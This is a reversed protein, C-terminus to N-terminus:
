AAKADKKRSSRGQKRPAEAKSAQEDISTAEAPEVVNTAEDAEVGATATEDQQKRGLGSARALASRKESYAPAVMPYDKPLDYRARYQDSTLGNTSLHRRLAIYHKGDVLSILYERRITKKWPLDVAPKPKDAAPEPVKGLSVLAAHIAEILGVLEESRTHNHSVYASAIDVVQRLTHESM